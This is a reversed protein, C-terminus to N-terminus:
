AEFSVIDTEDPSYTLIESLRACGRMDPIQKVRKNCLDMGIM